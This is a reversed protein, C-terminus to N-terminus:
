WETLAELYVLSSFSCDSRHAFMCHCEHIYLDLVVECANALLSYPILIGEDKHETLILLEVIVFFNTHM